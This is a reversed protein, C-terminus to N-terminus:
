KSGNTSPKYKIISEVLGRVQNFNQQITIRHHITRKLQDPTASGASSGDLLKARVHDMLVNYLYGLEHSGVGEEKLLYNAIDRVNHKLDEVLEEKTREPAKTKITAEIEPADIYETFGAAHHINKGRVSEIEIKTIEVDTDYEFTNILAQWEPIDATVVEINLLEDFDGGEEEETPEPIEILNEPKVLEQPKRKPPLDEDIGFLSGQDTDVEKRVKANLMDWLWQHNLKEHDVVAVLEQIDEDRVNLRLGRGIVQQGYVQSSFKRLLLIVSVAPVDWGERLMLVSVVAELDKGKEILQKTKNTGVKRELNFEAEELAKGQKGIIGALIREEDTSDETVLITNLKFQDQIMRAAQEADKICISVAFLIPKYTGHGLSEARRKQEELRNVAVAIQKEMPEPDTVWQTSTLGKEIKEFEEDMQDVTRKEGTDPNTYTLQVSSIKPQYVVVSKVIPPVTAQADSIDFAYIMKTDPSQGDARDPTATTDLRFRSIQSLKRLTNDYETAPTNHAEDNFVAIEGSQQLLVALNRLGNINSEYLQHINGLVIGDERVGSADAGLVHLNMANVFHETGHPFFQFNRFVKTNAFDEELRDRVITNPCLVVFKHLNHAIKLWAMVAGIIATKGGGTVINLLVDKFSLREYAYIVRQVAIMQHHWLRRPLDGDRLHLLYDRSLPNIDPFDGDVWENFDPEYKLFSNHM